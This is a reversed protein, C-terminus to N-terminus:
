TRTQSNNLIRAGRNLNWYSLVKLLSGAIENIEIQSLNLNWYSLVKLEFVNILKSYNFYKFEM